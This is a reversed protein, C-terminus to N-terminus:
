HYQQQCQEIDSGELRGNYYHSYRTGNLSMLLAVQEYLLLQAM